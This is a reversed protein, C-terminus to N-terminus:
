APKGARFQQQSFFSHILQCLTGHRNEAHATDARKHCFTKCTGTHSVKDEDIVIKDAQCIDVTLDM